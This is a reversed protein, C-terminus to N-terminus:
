ALNELRQDCIADLQALYQPCLAPNKAGPKSGFIAKEIQVKLANTYKTRLSQTSWELLTPSFYGLTLAGAGFVAFLPWSITTVPIFLMFTASTTAFSTAAVALGLAGVAAAGSAVFPLSDMLTIGEDELRRETQDVSHAVSVEISRQLRRSLM